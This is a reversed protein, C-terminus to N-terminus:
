TLILPEARTISGLIFSLRVRTSGVQNRLIPVEDFRGYMSEFSARLSAVGRMLAAFWRMQADHRTLEHTTPWWKYGDDV